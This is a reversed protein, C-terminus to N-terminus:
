RRWVEVLYGYRGSIARIELPALSARPTSRRSVLVATPIHERALVAGLSAGREESDALLVLRRYYLPLLQQATFMDDAVVIGADAAKVIALQEAQGASSAVWARMTGGAHMVLAGCMLAVGIAGTAREWRDPARVLAVVATIAGAALLPLLPLLLRAGLGKGGTTDVALFALAVYSITAIVVVRALRRADPDATVRPLLAFVLFPASRFLGAVFAPARATMAADILSPAAAAALVVFAARTRGALRLVIAALVAALLAIAPLGGFGMLWYEVVTQYREVTTLPALVPLEPNPASTLHFAARLLHVAHQLHAAPPRGFWWVEIAAAIALVGAAGCLCAFVSRLSRGALWVLALLGVVLLGCEDRVATAAGLLAGSLVARRTGAQVGVAFAATSFALAPAHEWETTGYFWLPTGLGLVLPVLPAGRVATLRVACMLVVGASLLSLLRMGYIGGFGAFLAELVAGAPPFIAQLGQPTDLVFPPRFPNFAGTPDLFAGRYPIALSRFGSDFLARAQVFKVGMDGSYVVDPSVLVFALVAYVALVPLLLFDGQRRRSGILAM